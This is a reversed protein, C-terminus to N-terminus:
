SVEVATNGLGANTSKYVVYSVTAGSANTHDFTTLLSFGGEFGGVKFTPTGWSAPFAYYIHQGAAANVTFTKARNTAFEGTFGNVIEDTVGAAALSAAVGWRRTDYFTVGATKSSSAKRADTATLTWTKNATLNVGKLTTGKSAVDQADKDLTLATPTKNVAWALTVDAVTAGREAQAPSATFSTVAIKSYLTITGDDAIDFDAGPKVIGAKDATAIGGGEGKLAFKAENATDQKTKFRSLGDLTVIKDAM